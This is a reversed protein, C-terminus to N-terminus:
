PTVVAFPFRTVSSSNMRNIPNPLAFGIRMKARLAIMDQQALNYIINGEADQIVAQDLIKYTIDQRMAWVLQDWQGSILSCTAAAISGDTPFYIPAGDLEYRTGEQMSTKFIPNGESDRCNRLKGKMSVHAISGTVMYGDAEVMMFAGDTGDAKEGLVAEYLDTYAAISINQSAATAGAVLGAAGLDTTWTAPINTGHIVAACITQNFAEILSPKVEGWIDYSSDDLVSEPIPVIVAIEEADIYKNAWNVETTQKLGTSGNVFYALALASMVPMRTQGTSMNQLKRALQMIPNTAAVAKTIESSVEEPILADADSASIVSNYPM